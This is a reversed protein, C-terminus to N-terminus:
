DHSSYSSKRSLKYWDRMDQSLDVEEVTWFSATAKKYMKFM